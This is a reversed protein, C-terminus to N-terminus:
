GHLAVDPAAALLHGPLTVAPVGLAEKRQAPQGALDLDVEPLRVEPDAAHDGPALVQGDGERVGVHSGGLHEPALRGLADALPEAVHELEGAAHRPPGDEVVGGLDAPADPALDPERLEEPAERRVVPEVVGEGVGVRAVLLAVDLVLDPAVPPVEEHGDRREVVDGRGVAPREPVAEVGARALAVVPEARGLELQEPLVFVRERRQRRGRERAHPPLGPRAVFLAGEGYAAGVAVRGPGGVRAAPDVDGQAGEVDRDAVGRGPLHDGGVPALPALSRGVAGVRGQLGPQQARPGRTPPVRADPRRQRRLEHREQVRLGGRVEGGVEPHQAVLAYLAAPGGGHLAHRARERGGAADVARRHGQGRRPGRRAVLADLVVLLDVQADVVPRRPQELSAVATGCVLESRPAAWADKRAAALASNMDPSVM